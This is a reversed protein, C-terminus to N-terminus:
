FGVRYREMCEFLMIATDYTHWQWQLQIASSHTIAITCHHMMGLLSVNLNLMMCCVEQEDLVLVIGNCVNLWCWCWRGSDHTIAIITSYIALTCNHRYWLADYVAYWSILCEFKFISEHWRVKQADSAMMVGNWKWAVDVCFRIHWSYRYLSDWYHALTCNYYHWLGDYILCYYCIWVHVFLSTGGTPWCRCSLWWWCSANDNYNFLLPTHLQSPKMIFRIGLLSVKLNLCAVYARNMCLWFSVTACMWDVDVDACLWLGDGNCNSLLRTHLQPSTINHMMGLLLLNLNFCAGICVCKRNTWLWLSVTAYEILIFM